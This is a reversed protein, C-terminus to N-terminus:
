LALLARPQAGQQHGGEGQQQDEEGEGDREDEDDFHNLNVDHLTWQESDRSPNNYFTLISIRCNASMILAFLGTKANNAAAGACQVAAIRAGACQM